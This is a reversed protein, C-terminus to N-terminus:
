KTKRGNKAPLALVAFWLLAELAKLIDLLPEAVMGSVRFRGAIQALIPLFSNLKLRLDIFKSATTGTDFAEDLDSVSAISLM